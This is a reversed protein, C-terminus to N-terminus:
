RSLFHLLLQPLNDIPQRTEQLLPPPLADIPQCSPKQAGSYHPPAFLPNNLLSFLLQLFYFFCDMTLQWSGEGKFPLLCEECHWGWSAASTFSSEKHGHPHLCPTAWGFASCMAMVHLPLGEKMTARATTMEKAMATAMELELELETATATAMVTATAIAWQWQRQRWGNSRDGYVMAGAMETANGDAMATAMAKAMPCQWRWWQRGDCNGDGDAMVTTMGNTM